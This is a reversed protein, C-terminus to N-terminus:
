GSNSNNGDTPEHEWRKLISNRIQGMIKSDERCSEQHNKEMGALVSRLEERAIQKGRGVGLQHTYHVLRSMTKVFEYHIEQLGDTPRRVGREGFFDVVLEYLVRQIDFRELVIPKGNKDYGKFPM